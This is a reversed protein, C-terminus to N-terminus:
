ITRGNLRVPLRAKKAIDIMNQTGKSADISRHFAEVRVRRADSVGLALQLMVKNRAPGGRRGLFGIYPVRIEILPLGFVDILERSQLDAGRQNGHMLWSGAPYQKLVRLMLAHDKDTGWERDGTVIVLYPRGAM